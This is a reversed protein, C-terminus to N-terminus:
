EKCTRCQQYLIGGEVKTIRKKTTMNNINKNTLCIVFIIFIIRIGYM